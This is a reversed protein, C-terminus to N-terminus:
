EAPCGGYMNRLGEAYIELTPMGLAARREDLTDMDATPRPQYVGDICDFNTAYQQLGGVALAVDDVLMAYRDGPVRGSLALPEFHAIMEKKFELDDTHSVISFAYDAARSSISVLEALSTENLIERLRTTNARDIRDFAYQTGAIFEQRTAETMPQQFGDIILERVFEDRARMEGLEAVIEEGRALREEFEGILDQATRLPADDQAVAPAVLFAALYLTVILARM